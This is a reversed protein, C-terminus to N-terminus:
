DPVRIVMELEQLPCLPCRGGVDHSRFVSPRGLQLGQGFHISGHWYSHYRDLNPHGGRFVRSEPSNNWRSNELMSSEMFGHERKDDPDYGPTSSSRDETITDAQARQGKSAEATGENWASADQKVPEPRIVPAASAIRNGCEDCFKAGELLILSTGCKECRPGEQGQRALSELLRQTVVTDGAAEGRKQWEERYRFGCM